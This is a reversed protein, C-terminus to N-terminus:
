DTFHVDVTGSSVRVVNVCDTAQKRSHLGRPVNKKQAHIDNMNKQPIKTLAV